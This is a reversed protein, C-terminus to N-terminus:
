ACQMATNNQRVENVMADQQCSSANVTDLLRKRCARVVDGQYRMTGLPNGCGDVCAPNCVDEHCQIGALACPCKVECVADKKANILDEVKDLLVSKSDEELIEVKYSHLLGKLKKMSMKRYNNFEAGCNCGVNNRGSRIDMLEDMQQIALTAMEHQEDVSLKRRRSSRVTDEKSTLVEKREREDLRKFLPNDKSKVYDFQRTELNALKRDKGSLSDMRFRLEAARCQEFVDVSDIWKDEFADSLGLAWTGESPVGGGGGTCREFERVKVHGWKVKGGATYEEVDKVFDQVSKDLSKTRKKKSKTTSKKAKVNLSNMLDTDKTDWPLTDIQLTDMQEVM